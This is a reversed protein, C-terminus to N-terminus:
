RRRQYEGLPPRPREAHRTNALPAQQGAGGLENWFERHCAQVADAIAAVVCFLGAVQRKEGAPLKPLNPSACAPGPAEGIHHARLQLPLLIVWVGAPISPYIVPALPKSLECQRKLM